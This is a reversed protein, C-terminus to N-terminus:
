QQVHVIVVLVERRRLTYLLSQLYTSLYSLTQINVKRPGCNSYQTIFVVKSSWINNSGSRYRDDSVNHQVRLTFRTGTISTSHNSCHTNIRGNSHIQSPSTRSRTSIDPFTPNCPRINSSRRFINETPTTIAITTPRPLRPPHLEM